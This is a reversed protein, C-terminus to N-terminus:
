VRRTIHWCAVHAQLAGAAASLHEQLGAAWKGAGRVGDNRRGLGQLPELETQLDAGGLWLEGRRGQPGGM